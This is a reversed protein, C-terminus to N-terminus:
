KIVVEDPVEKVIKDCVEKAEAKTTTCNEKPVYECKIAPQPTTTTTTATTSYGYYM